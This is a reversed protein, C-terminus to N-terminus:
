NKLGTMHVHIFTRVERMWGKCINCVRCFLKLYVCQVNPIVIILATIFVINFNFHYYAIASIWDMIRILNQDLWVENPLLCIDSIWM